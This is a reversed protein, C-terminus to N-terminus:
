HLYFFTSFIYHAWPYVTSGAKDLCIFVQTVQWTHRSQVIRSIVAITASVVPLLFTRTKFFIHTSWHIPTYIFTSPSFHRFLNINWCDVKKHTERNIKATLRPSASLIEDYYNSDITKIRQENKKRSTKKENNRGKKKEQRRRCCKRRISNDGKM